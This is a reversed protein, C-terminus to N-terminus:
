RTAGTLAADLAAEDDATLFADLDYIALVGDELGAVGAMPAPSQEVPPGIRGREVAIVGLVEDVPLAVRRTNTRALVLRASLGRDSTPRGIRLDLDLVPVIEGGVNIAGRVGVPSEPLPSVAVMGVVREVAALPLAWSQGGVVVAVLEVDDGASRERRMGRDTYRPGLCRPAPEDRAPRSDRM